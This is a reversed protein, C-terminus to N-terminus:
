GVQPSALPLKFESGLHRLSTSMRRLAEGIAETFEIYRM